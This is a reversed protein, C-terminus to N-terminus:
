NLLNYMPFYFCLCGSSLTLSYNILIQIPIGIFSMLLYNVSFYEILFCLRIAMSPLKRGTLKKELNSMFQAM